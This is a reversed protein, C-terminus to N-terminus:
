EIELVSGAQMAGVGSHRKVVADGEPVRPQPYGGHWHGQTSWTQGMWSRSRRAMSFLLALFILFVSPVAFLFVLVALDSPSM